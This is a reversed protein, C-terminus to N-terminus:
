SCQCLAAFLLCVDHASELPHLASAKRQLKKVEFVAIVLGSEFWGREQAFSDLSVVPDAMPNAEGTKFDRVAGMGPNITNEQFL